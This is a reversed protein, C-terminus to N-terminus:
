MKVKYKTRSTTSTNTSTRNMSTSNREINSRKVRATSYRTPKYTGKLYESIHARTKDNTGLNDSDNTTMPYSQIESVGGSDTIKTLQNLEASTLKIIERHILFNDIHEELIESTVNKTFMDAINNKSMVFIIKIHGDIIFERVFHYRADIHRTHKTASANEAVFIAGVNDIHVIIPKEVKLHLSELVQLVFKIEKTAEAMAYYEAETSSLSVTRQSQSRWMIPTENLLIVFGTVSKRTNVDAAWDSDSFLKVKWEIKSPDEVKPAIKFGYYKTQLLYCIIRLMEKFSSPTAKDMCKSLERVPNALDPRTKSSFQLLTGVGSRYLKQDEASLSNEGKSPRIVLKGPTGPTKYNFNKMNNIMPGFKNEVKKLLTTQIVWAMNNIQDVNIDCSLYDTANYSVKLKLGTGELDQVLEEITTRNGVVYCDDIHIIMIVRGNKTDRFFLCPDAYSQEFGIKKLEATFKLYFQRAAQVLGYLAKDLQTCEDNNVELGSPANMYIEEHLDGHLFATEVDIIASCLKYVIQIIIVIRFVVDNVVPAYYDQFDIGPTQSYGCAVLRARFTGNRKIDFVWKCKICKRGKPISSRKIIHWVKLDSMKNLELTIATRWQKRVWPDRHYFAEEYTSPIQLFDKLESPSIGFPNKNIVKIESMTFIADVYKNKFFPKPVPSVMSLAQDKFSHYTSSDETSSDEAKEEDSTINEFIIEEEPNQFFYEEEESKEEDKQEEVQPPEEIDQHDQINIRPPQPEVQPQVRQQIEQHMRTAVPNFFGDLRRLERSVRTRNEEPIPIQHEIRPQLIQQQYEAETMLGPMVDDDDDDNGIIAENEEQITPITPIDNIEPPINQQTDENIEVDDDDDDDEFLAHFPNNQLNNRTQNLFYDGYMINMPAADRSLIVRRTEPNYYRGTDPAHDYAYGLYIGIIGKNQM